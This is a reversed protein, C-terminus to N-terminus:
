DKKKFLRGFFGRKKEPPAAITDTKKQEKVDKQDKVTNEVEPKKASETKQEPDKQVAEKQVPEKKIEPERNIKEIAENKGIVQDTEEKKAPTDNISEDTKKTQVNAEFASSQAHAPPEAKAAFSDVSILNLKNSDQNNSIAGLSFAQQVQTEKKEPITVIASKEFPKAVADLFRSNDIWLDKGYFAGAIFIGMIGIATIHAGPLTLKKKHIVLDIREEPIKFNTPSLDEEAQLRSVPRNVAQSMINKRIEEARTEIEDKGIQKPRKPIRQRSIAPSIEKLKERNISYSVTLEELESPHCWANTRGDVWVLDTPRLRQLLLEDITYPGSELNDRLLFYNSQM